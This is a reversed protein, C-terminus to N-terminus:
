AHARQRGEIKTFRQMIIKIEVFCNQYALCISSPAVNSVRVNHVITRLQVGILLNNYPGDM